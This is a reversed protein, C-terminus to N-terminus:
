ERAGGIHQPWTGALHKWKEYLALNAVLEGDALGFRSPRRVTQLSDYVACEREGGQPAGSVIFLCADVSAGFHKFADICYIEANRLRQGRKWAQRLIKRAVTIKCLVALSAEQGEIWEMGRLLMWESIDFNSKGTLADIGRQRQFNTPRGYKCM